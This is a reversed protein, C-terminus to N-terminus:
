HAGGSTGGIGRLRKLDNSSLGCASIIVRAQQCSGAKHIEPIPETTPVGAANALEKEYEQVRENADSAQKTAEVERKSSEEAITKASWAQRHAEALNAELQKNNAELQASRDLKGRDAYGLEYSGYAAAGCFFAIAVFKGIVPIYIYALVGAIILAPIIAWWLYSLILSTIM